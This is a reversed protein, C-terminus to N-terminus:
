ILFQQNPCTPTPLDPLPAKLSASIDWVKLMYDESASVALRGDASLAVGCMVGCYGKLMHLEGGMAPAYSVRYGWLDPEINENWHAPVLPGPAAHAVLCTPKVPPAYALAGQAAVFGGDTSPKAM